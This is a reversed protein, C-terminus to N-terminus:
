IGGTGQQKGAQEYLFGQGQLGKENEEELGVRQWGERTWRNMRTKEQEERERKKKIGKM